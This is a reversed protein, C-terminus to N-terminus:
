DNGIVQLNGKGASFQYSRLLFILYVISGSASLATVAAKADGLLYYAAFLSAFTIVGAFINLYLDERQREALFYTFSLPSAIFRLFYMVSFIQAYEGAVRWKAGFVVSFLFPAMFFFIVFPPLSLVLLHKFTKMYINRCNGFKAYDSSARQKFVEAISSVILTIPAGLVRQTLSYFGIVAAGFFNSLLMIPIQNTSSNLFDAPLSFLPFNKFRVGQRRLGHRNVARLTERDDKWIQRGLMVTPASQGAISGFILGSAGFKAVGLSLNAAATAASLSMRNLALRRFRMKRTLWCNLTQYASTLLITAPVLYLWRAIGPSGLMKAFPGNFLMVAIFAFASVAISICIALGAVNAADEDREPLLVALEYRGTAVISVLSTVSLYLALVGFDDPSYIRTLIPSMAIPIAQAITTGTVLTLVNGRFSGGPAYRSKLYRLSQIM